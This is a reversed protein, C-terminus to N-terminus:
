YLMDESLIVQLKIYNQIKKIIQNAYMHGYM